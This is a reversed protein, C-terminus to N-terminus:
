HDYPRVPIQEPAEICKKGFADFQQRRSYNCGTLLANNHDELYLLIDANLMSLSTYVKEDIRSFITTYIIKVAGEVLAKDQGTLGQLFFMRTTIPQLHPLATTLSHKM